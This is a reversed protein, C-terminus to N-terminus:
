YNVLKRVLTNLKVSVPRTIIKGKDDANSVTWKVEVNVKKIKFDDKKNFEQKEETITVKREYPKQVSVMEDKGIKLKSFSETDDSGSLIPIDSYPTTKIRDIMDAAYAIGKMEDFTAQAGRRTTLIQSSIGVFSISLIVLAVIIEVLTFGKKSNQANSPKLSFMSIKVMGLDGDM